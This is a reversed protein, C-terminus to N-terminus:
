KKKCPYNQYLATTVAPAAVFSDHQKNTELYNLVTQHLINLPVDEPVCIAMAPALRMVQLLNHYDIVGSIYAQCATHGGAVKEKGDPGIECIKLLYAGTFRAGADAPQSALTGALIFFTTFILGRMYDM